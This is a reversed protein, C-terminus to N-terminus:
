ERHEASLHWSSQREPDTIKGTVGYDLILYCARTLYHVLDNRNFGYAIASHLFCLAVFIGMSIRWTRYSVAIFRRPDLTMKMATEYHIIKPLRKIRPLM